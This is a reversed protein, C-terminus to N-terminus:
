RPSSGLLLFSLFSNTLFHFYFYFYFYFYFFVKYIRMARNKTTFVEEFYLPKKVEPNFRFQHLQYLLSRSLAPSVKQTRHNIM